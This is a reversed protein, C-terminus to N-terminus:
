HSEFDSERVWMVKIVNKLIPMTKENGKPSTKSETMTETM